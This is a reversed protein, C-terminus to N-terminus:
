PVPEFMFCGIPLFSFSTTVSTTSANSAGAENNKDYKNRFSKNSTGALLKQASKGSEDTNSTVAKKIVPTYLVTIRYAPEINKIFVITQLKTM